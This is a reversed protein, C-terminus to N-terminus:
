VPRMHLGRSSAGGLLAAAPPASPVAAGCGAQGVWPHGACAPPHYIRIPISSNTNLGVTLYLYRYKFGCISPYTNLGVFYLFSYKFGRISLPIPM